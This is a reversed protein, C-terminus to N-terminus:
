LFTQNSIVVYWLFAAWLWLVLAYISSSVVKSAGMKTSYHYSFGGLIFGFSWIIGVGIIAPWVWDGHWADFPPVDKFLFSVPFYLLAGLLGMSLLGLCATSCFAIISFKANGSLSKWFGM